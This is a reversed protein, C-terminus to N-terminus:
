RGEKRAREIMDALRGLQEPSIKGEERSILAAVASEVSNDFFTQLVGRIARQGMQDRAVSPEYVYRTGDTEHKVHGKAELITLHTRVATYTPPNALSERIQAASAKGLKYLADM